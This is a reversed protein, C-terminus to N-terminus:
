LHIHHTGTKTAVQVFTAAAFFLLGLATFNITGGRRATGDGTAPRALTSWFTAVLFWVGAIIWLILAVINMCGAYASHVGPPTNPTKDVL